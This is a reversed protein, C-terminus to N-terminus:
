VCRSRLLRIKTQCDLRMAVNSGAKEFGNMGLTQGVFEPLGINGPLDRNRDNVLALGEREAKARIDENAIGDKNLDFEDDCQKRRVVRLKQGVESHALNGDTQQHVEVGDAQLIAQPAEDYSENVRRAGEHHKTNKTTLRALSRAPLFKGRDRRGWHRRATSTSSFAHITFKRGVM